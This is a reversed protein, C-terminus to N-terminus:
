KILITFPVTILHGAPNFEVFLRYIGPKIPGYLGLPLFDVTPRSQAHTALTAPHVHLYDFTQTNIMTLHGFAGLYPQLDTIDHGSAADTVKFTITQKGVSMDAASLAKPLQIAVKYGDVIKEQTDIGSDAATDGAQGVRLTFAFQQETSGLPQFNIYVHYTGDRPFSTAITFGDATLEPHIHSFFHLQNDVIILHLLKDYLPAFLLIPTGNSADVVQFKLQVSQGAAITDPHLFSVSYRQSAPNLQAQKAQLLHQSHIGISNLSNSPVFSILTYTVLLAIVLSLSLGFRVAFRFRRALYADFRNAQILLLVALLGFCIQPILGGLDVFQSGLILAHIVILVGALYVFRHLFKWRRFSLYAVAKDFSTAAMLLLILLAASSLTIAVLYKTSLFPLGAFGGLEGFFALSAHLLAFYAASVGLARRARYIPGRFPLSRFMYVAPGIMLVVYLYFAATLAYIETLRIVRLNGAPITAAVYGYIGASLALGALLVYLRINTFLKFV